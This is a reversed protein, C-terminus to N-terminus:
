TEPPGDDGEGTLASLVNGYEELLLKAIEKIPVTDDEWTVQLRVREEGTYPRAEIKELWDRFKEVYAVANTLREERSGGSARPTDIQKLTTRGNDLFSKLEGALKFRSPALDGSPDSM